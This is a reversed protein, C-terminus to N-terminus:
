AIAEFARRERDYTILKGERFTEFIYQILREFAAESAKLGPILIMREPPIAWVDFSSDDFLDTIRLNAYPNGHAVSHMSHPYKRLIHVLSRVNKTEVFLHRLFDIALPRPSYQSERLGRRGFFQLKKEGIRAIQSVVVDFAIKLSGTVEIEADKRLKCSVKPRVHTFEGVKPFFDVDISTLYQHREQISSLAEDLEEDTWERVSKRKKKTTGRITEQASFAKVRVEHNSFQKLADAAKILESQSLLVPVLSPYQRKFFRRLKQWHDTKCVSIAASLKPGIDDFSKFLFPLQLRKSKQENSEIEYAYTHSGSATRTLLQRNVLMEAVEVPSTNAYLVKIRIRFPPPVELDVLKQFIEDNTGSTLLAQIYVDFDRQESFSLTEAKM